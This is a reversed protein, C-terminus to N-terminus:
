FSVSLAPDVSVETAVVRRLQAEPCGSSGMPTACYRPPQSDFRVSTAIKLSLHEGLSVALAAEDLVRYDLPDDIRPVVYFTNILKVPGPGISFDVVHGMRHWVNLPGTGAPQDIFLRHDLIELEPVYGTGYYLEFGTRQMVRVRLGAGVLQRWRLLIMEDVEVQSFAEASLRPALRMFMRLHGLHHNVLRGQPADAFTQGARAMSQARFRHETLALFGHGNSQWGLHTGGGAEIVNVNGRRVGGRLDLGLSWGPEVLARRRKEFNVSAWAVSWEIVVALAGLVVALGWRRIWGRRYGKGCARRSM